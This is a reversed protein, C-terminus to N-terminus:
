QEHSFDATGQGLIPNSQPSGQRHEGPTCIGGWAQFQCRPKHGFSASLSSSSYPLLDAPSPLTISRFDWHTVGLLSDGAALETGASPCDVQSPDAHSRVMRHWGLAVQTPNGCSGEHTPGPFDQTPKARQKQLSIQMTSFMKIQEQESEAEVGSRGQASKTSAAAELEVDGAM